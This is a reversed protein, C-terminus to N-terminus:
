HHEAALSLYVITLVMFVFAQLTVVLIHFVAWLWHLALGAAFFVAGQAFLLAILIFILEGAFLNGFLRLSLSIPKALEEVIRLMLNFPALKPGFPQTLAEKTFGVVGKMKLNMYFILLLVSLSLGFTINVDTSPVVKLYNIDATAAVMPLLDVPVLDMCNMLFVWVFITLGLPAILPHHGPFTEKVQGDVFDVVMEVLNQMGTPVGASAKKAVGRFVWLFLGGLLLSFVISDLHLVWFGSAHPDLTMTTLDLKLNTLHHVVYDTSSVKEGTGSAM